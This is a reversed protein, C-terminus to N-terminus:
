LFNLLSLPASRSAVTLTAQLQTQLLSFRTSAEFFDLDQLDSKIRTDLLMRDELRAAADDIRKARGGVTARAVALRESDAELREGAFTIGREDDGALSDRLDMLTTFLSDVRVTSRDTGTLVAPTGTTSAGDLLGLDEAAYGNLTEVSVAGAGGLRDELQIGNSGSALVARFEGAGGGVTVGAAAADANIRALLSQVDEVDAPELDVEFTTGDSLSVRFDVNRNPDPAGTEDVEGHAIEVGRGDNFTSLATTAKMTRVGLTAAATGGAEEVSMRLGAVENVFNISDGSGDIEVRVGLDLRRVAEKLEGVTMGADLTVTGSRSGNRIRIDAGTDLATAPNTAGIVTRDTLRPDLGAGAGPNSQAANTFNHASLGLASATQGVPGDAFTITVGAAPDLVLRDNGIAVGAGFPGNLAGAPGDNRIASEVMDRVDGVTEAASLDVRITAPTGNDITVDMVGLSGAATMPGRLDSLLTDATLTPNLDVDGEVRASLSGVVDDAPATIPFDIEPGLDARMGDREGRYVYGGYFSEVPRTGTASGAFLSLGAYDSNVAAFLQDLLADVVLSQQERTGADSGAGLQSSAVTKAELVLDSLSGIEADITSLVASAQSLNRERQTEAEIEQDLSGILAAAIPDDSPRNVRQLTSMQNQVRLLESNVSTLGNLTLSSALANPVRTLNSPISSM